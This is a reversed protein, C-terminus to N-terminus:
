GDFLVSHGDGFMALGAVVGPVDGLPPEGLFPKKWKALTFWSRSQTAVENDDQIDTVYKHYRM